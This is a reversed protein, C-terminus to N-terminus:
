YDWNVEDIKSSLTTKVKASGPLNLMYTRSGSTLELLEKHVEGDTLAAGKAQILKVMDATKAAPIPYSVVRRNQLDTVYGFVGKNAEFVEKRTVVVKKGAKANAVNQSNVMADLGILEARLDDLEVKMGVPRVWAYGDTFNRVDEYGESTIAKRQLDFNYYLKDDKQAWLNTPNPQTVFVLSYYEAPVLEEDKLTRVGWKGNSKLYALGHFPAFANSYKFPIITQGATNIIGWLTDKKVAFYNADADYRAFKVDSYGADSFMVNGNYDIISCGNDTYGAWVKSPVGQEIRNFGTKVKAGQKNIFTWAGGLRVPAINGTFDGNTQSKSQNLAHNVTGVKVVSKTDLNIYGVELSNKQTNYYRMMGSHPEFLWTFKGMAVVVQGNKDFIGAERTSLAAKTFGIYSCDTKLTDDLFHRANDLAVGDGYPKSDRLVSTFEFLGYHEARIIVRADKDIIGFKAGDLYTRKSEEDRQPKGGVAILAKGHSNFSSIFSYGPKLLETGSANMIGYKNGSKIRYFKGTEDYDIEEYKIPVVFKGTADVLGFKEGKMVKGMGHEFPLAADYKCELITRGNADEYGARGKQDVKVKIDQAQLLTAPLALAMLLMM